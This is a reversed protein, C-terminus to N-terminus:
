HLHQFRTLKNMCHFSNDKQTVKAAPLGSVFQDLSDLAAILQGSPDHSVHLQFRLRLGNAEFAAQWLGEVPSKAGEPNRATPEIHFILPLANSGQRWEGEITKLDASVQGEYTVGVSRVDFKLVGFNLTVSNAEIGFVAQDLSDLTAHLAGVSNKSLHLVIHLQAEGAQLTGTYTGELNAVPAEVTHHAAGSGQARLSAAGSLALLGWVTICISRFYRLRWERVMSTNETNGFRKGMLPKLVM